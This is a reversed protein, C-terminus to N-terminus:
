LNQILIGQYNCAGSNTTAGTKNELVLSWHDPLIGGFAQGVSFPGCKYATSNAVISCVGILKVNPPNTLTVTASSASVGDTYTTGGDSTGAAYFNTYGTSATSSGASTITCSVLADLFLNTSNDIATGVSQVNNLQAAAIAISQNSTGYSMKNTTTAAISFGPFLLALSVSLIKKM